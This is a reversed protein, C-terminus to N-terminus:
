KEFWKKVKNFDGKTLQRDDFEKWHIHENYEEYSNCISILKLDVKWNKIIELVEIDPLIANICEKYKESKEKETDYSRLVNLKAIAERSTM